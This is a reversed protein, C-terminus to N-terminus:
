RYNSFRPWIWILAKNWCRAIMASTDNQEQELKEIRKKLFHIQAAMELRQIFEETPLDNINKNPNGSSM